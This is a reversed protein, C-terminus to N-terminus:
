VRRPRPKRCGNHPMPTVDKIKLVNFSQANLARIAGERGMGIGKVYVVVDKLGIAAVKEAAAKVVVGAAYPTAKKPGKFGCQGSSSWGLVNGFQDAFSVITNNYTAQIFVSGLTVQAQLKKKAKTGRKSKTKEKEAM